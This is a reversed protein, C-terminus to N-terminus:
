CSQKKHEWCGEDEVALVVLGVHHRLEGAERVWVDGLDDAVVPALFGGVDLVVPLAERFFFLGAVLAVVRVVPVLRAAAASTSSRRSRGRSPAVAAIPAGVTTSPIDGRWPCGRRGKSRIM